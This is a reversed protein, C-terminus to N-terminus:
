AGDSHYVESLRACIRLLHSHARTQQTRAPPVIFGQPLRLFGVGMCEVLVLHIDVHQQQFTVAVFSFTERTQDVIMRDLHFRVAENLELDTNMLHCSVKRCGLLEDLGGHRNKVARGPWNM